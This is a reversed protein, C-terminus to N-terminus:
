HIGENQLTDEDFIERNQSSLTPNKTQRVFGMLFFCDSSRRKKWNWEHQQVMIMVVSTHRGGEDNFFNAEDGRGLASQWAIFLFYSYIFISHLFVFTVALYIMLSHVNKKKM